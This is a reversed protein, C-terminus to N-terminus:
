RVSVMKFNKVESINNFVHEWGVDDDDLAMRWYYEFSATINGVPPTTFRILGNSLLSYNTVLVNNIYVSLTNAVLDTVPETYVTKYRRVLQWDTVSGQGIGLLIKTEQHDEYDWWLFPELQGKVSYLFATIEERQDENLGVLDVEIEWLPYSQNTMTRRKGSGSKKVVTEWVPNKKSGWKVPLIPCIPLTM